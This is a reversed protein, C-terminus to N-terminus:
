DVPARHGADDVHVLHAEAIRQEGDGERPHGDEIAAPVLPVHGVQALREIKWGVPARGEVEVGRAVADLEEALEPVTEFAGRRRALASEPDELREEGAERFSADASSSRASTATSFAGTPISDGDSRSSGRGSPISPRSTRRPTATCRAGTRGARTRASARRS